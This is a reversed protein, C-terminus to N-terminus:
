IKNGMILNKKFIIKKSNKSPLKKSADKKKIMKKLTCNKVPRSKKLNKKSFRTKQPYQKQRTVKKGNKIKKPHGNKSFNKANGRQNKQNKKFFKEPFNQAVFFYSEPFEM